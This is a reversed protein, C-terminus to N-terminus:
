QRGEELEDLSFKDQADCADDILKQHEDSGFTAEFEAPTFSSILFEREDVPMEPFVDQILRGGQWLRHKIIDVEVRYIKDTIWCKKEYVVNQGSIYIKDHTLKM